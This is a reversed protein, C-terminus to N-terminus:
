FEERSGEKSSREIKEQMLETLEEYSAILENATKIVVEQQKIIQNQLDAMEDRM